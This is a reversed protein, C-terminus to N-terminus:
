QNQKVVIYPRLRELTRRTIRPIALLDEPQRFPGSKERFRIIEAAMAPGVGPLQQLEDGSAANIDIPQDPHKDFVRTSYERARAWAGRIPADLAPRIWFAACLYAAVGAFLVIYRTKM